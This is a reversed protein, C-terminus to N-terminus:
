FHVFVLICFLHPPVYEVSHSPISRRPSASWSTSFPDSAATPTTSRKAIKSASSRSHSRTSIPNRAEPLATRSQRTTESMRLSGHLHDLRDGAGPAAHAVAAAPPNLRLVRQRIAPVSAVWRFMATVTPERLAGDSELVVVGPAAGCPRGAAPALVLVRPLHWQHVASVLITCGNIHSTSLSSPEYTFFVCSATFQQFSFQLQNHFTPAHFSCHTVRSPVRSSLAARLISGHGVSAPDTPRRM